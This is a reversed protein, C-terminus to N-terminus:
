PSTKTGTGVQTTPSTPKGPTDTEVEKDMRSKTPELMQSPGGGTNCGSVAACVCAAWLTRSMSM